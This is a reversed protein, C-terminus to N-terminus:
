TLHKTPLYKTGIVSLDLPQKLIMWFQFITVHALHTTKSMIYSYCVAAKRLYTHSNCMYFIAKENIGQTTRM